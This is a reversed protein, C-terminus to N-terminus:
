SGGLALVNECSTLLCFEHITKSGPRLHLISSPRATGAAYGIPYQTLLLSGKGGVWPEGVLNKWILHCETSLPAQPPIVRHDLHHPIQRCFCGCRQRESNNSLSGTNKTQKKKKLKKLHKNKLSLCLTLPLPASLSPSVSDSAPEPGQATLMSGSTPSSSVLQPIM